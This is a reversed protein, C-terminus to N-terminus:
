EKYAHRRMLEVQHDRVLSGDAPSPQWQGDSQLVWCRTIPDLASDLVADLSECLRPETVRVLVEVRRDLNRHMMDSSGLWHEGSGVFQFV